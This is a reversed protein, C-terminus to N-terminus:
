LYDFLVNVNCLTYIAVCVMTHARSINFSISMIFVMQFVMVHIQLYKIDLLTLTLILQEAMKALTLSTLM